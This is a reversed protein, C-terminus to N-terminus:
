VKSDTLQKFRSLKVAMNGRRRSPKSSHGVVETEYLNM